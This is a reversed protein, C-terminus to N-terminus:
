REGRNIGIARELPSHGSKDFPAKAFDPQNLKRRRTPNTASIPRTEREHSTLHLSVIEREQVLRPLFWFWQLYGSTFAVLCIIIYDFPPYVDIFSVTLVVTPFSSPFSLLMLYLLADNNTLSYNPYLVYSGLGLQLLSICVAIWSYKVARKWDIRLKGTM